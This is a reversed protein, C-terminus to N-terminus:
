ILGQRLAYGVAHARNRLQLRNTIGHLVNKVTRESYSLKQAIEGTEFGESLLRVVEIERGSLVSLSLGRPELLHRQLRSVQSLLKGLLDPPMCGDGRAAALVAEVLRDQTAESRRVFSHVGCEIATPLVAEDLRNIVLLPKAVGRRAIRRLSQVTSEDVADVVLIEVEMDTTDDEVVKVEPRLKLQSVVGAKSIPDEAHVHVQVRTM